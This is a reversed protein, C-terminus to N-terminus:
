VGDADQLADLNVPIGEKYDQLAKKNQEKM